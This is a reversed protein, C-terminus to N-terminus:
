SATGKERALCNSGLPDDLFLALMGLYCCAWDYWGIKLWM